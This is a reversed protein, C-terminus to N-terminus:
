AGRGGIQIGAMRSWEYASNHAREAMRGDFAERVTVGAREVAREAVERSTAFLDGWAGDGAVLVIRVGRQGVYSIQAEADGGRPATFATIQQALRAVRRETDAM